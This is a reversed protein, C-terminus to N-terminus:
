WGHHHFHVPQHGHYGYHDHHDRYDYFHITHGHGHDYGGHHPSTECPPPIQHYSHLVRLERDCATRGRESRTFECNSNSPRPAIARADALQERRPQPQVQPNRTDIPTNAEITPNKAVVQGFSGNEVQAVLTTNERVLTDGPFVGTVAEVFQDDGAGLTVEWREFSDADSESQAFVYTKDGQQYLSSRPITIVADDRGALERMEVTHTTLGIEERLTKSIKFGTSDADSKKEEHSHDHGSHDHGEHDHDDAIVTLAVAGCLFASLTLISKRPTKMDLSVGLSKSNNLNVKQPRHPM